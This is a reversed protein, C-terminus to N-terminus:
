KKGLRERHSRDTLTSCGGGFLHLNSAQTSGAPVHLLASHICARMMHKSLSCPTIATSIADLWRGMTHWSWEHSSAQPWHNRFYELGSKSRWGFSMKPKVHKEEVLLAM